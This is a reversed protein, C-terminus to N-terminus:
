GLLASPIPAVTPGWHRPSPIRPWLSTSFSTTWCTLPQSSRYDGSIPPIPAPAFVLSAILAVRSSRGEQTSACVCECARRINNSSGCQQRTTVPSPRSVVSCARFHPSTAGRARCRGLKCGWWPMAWALIFNCCICVPPLILMNCEKVRRCTFRLSAPM